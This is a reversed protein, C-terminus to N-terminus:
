WPRPTTGVILSDSRQFLALFGAAADHSEFADCVGDDRDLWEGLRRGVQVDLADADEGQIAMTVLGGPSRPETSLEIADVVVRDPHSEVRVLQWRRWDWRGNLRM